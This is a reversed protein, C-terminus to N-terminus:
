FCHSVYQKEFKFSGDRNEININLNVSADRGNRLKARLLVETSTVELDVDQATNALNRSRQDYDDSTFSGSSNLKYYNNLNISSAELKGYKNLCLGHLEVKGGDKEVFM